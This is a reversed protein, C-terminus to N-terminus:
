VATVWLLIALVMAIAGAAILIIMILEPTLETPLEHGWITQGGTIREESGLPEVVAEAGTSIVPEPRPTVQNLLATPNYAQQRIDQKRQTLITSSGVGAVLLFVVLVGSWMRLDLKPLKRQRPTLGEAPVGDFPNGHEPPFMSEDVM